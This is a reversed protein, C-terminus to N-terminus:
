VGRESVELLFDFVVSERLQSPAAELLLDLLAWGLPLPARLMEADDPVAWAQAVARVRWGWM